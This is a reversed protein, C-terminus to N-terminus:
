LRSVIIVNVYKTYGHAHCLRHGLWPRSRCRRVTTYVLLGNATYIVQMYHVGLDFCGELSWSGTQACCLADNFQVFCHQWSMLSLCATAEVSMNQLPFHHFSLNCGANGEDRDLGTIVALLQMYRCCPETALCITYLVWLCQSTM